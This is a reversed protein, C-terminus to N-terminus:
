RCGRLLSLAFHGLSLGGMVSQSIVAAPREVEKGQLLAPLKKLGRASGLFGALSVIAAGRLASKRRAPKKALIGLGLALAGFGAPILATKHKAGTAMFGGVGLTILAAGYGITTRIM